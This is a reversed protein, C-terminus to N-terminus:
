RIIYTFSTRHAYQGNRIVIVHLLLGSPSYEYLTENEHLQETVHTTRVRHLRGQVYKYTTIATDGMSQGYRSTWEISRSLQRNIYEFRRHISTKQIDVANVETSAVVLGTSDAQSLPTGNAGFDDDCPGIERPFRSGPLFPLQLCSDVTLTDVWMVRGKRNM